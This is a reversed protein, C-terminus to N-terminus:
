EPFIEYIICKAATSKIYDTVRVVKYKYNIFSKEDFSCRHVSKNMLSSSSAKQRYPVSIILSKNVYQLCKDVVFFPKDFHELTQVITIYDYKTPIPDKLIDLVYYEIHKTKQKAKQIGIDSIDAGAIKAHLFEKQLIECGDGIACGIDLCSFKGSGSFIDLIHYYHENRWFKDVNSFRNDWFSKTNPNFSFNGYEFINTMCICIDRSLDTWKQSNSIKQFIYELM